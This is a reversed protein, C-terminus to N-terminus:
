IKGSIGDQDRDDIDEAERLAEESIAELLGMGIVQPAVRPSILLNTDAPGYAFQDMTYTPKRLSYTEGDGYVGEIEEWKVM